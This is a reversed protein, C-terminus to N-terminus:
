ALVRNGPDVKEELYQVLDGVTRLPLLEEDKILINFREELDMAIEVLDLSDAGLDRAIDTTLEIDNPNVALEKVLTLQVTEFITPM